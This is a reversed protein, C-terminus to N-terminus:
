VGEEYPTYKEGPHRWFGAGGSLNYATRVLPMHSFAQPMNGVLRGYRPDYMESLLGVDNRLSLLYDFLNLAEDERGLMHLADVLWFGCGLFAGEEGPLPDASCEGGARYRLVLGDVQLERQVADVTGVVREDHAPLFGVQPILLLAADLTRSGYYQTFTSREADYGKECVEQHIADRQARWHDVQEGTGRMEAMRVARDLAVWAMVKSHVYQQRTGRIEWIGEDPEHWHEAVYDALARMIAWAPESPPIGARRALHIADLLEGYVDLQFQKAAGNGIRVPVSGEHGPLWDAEFETLRREGAVGYMIQLDQPSGAVARGLWRRWEKASETYGSRLLAELTFAADRIWCYRYDWNREGGIDEPLSTTPAAVIGGTPAYTLAKLTILSRMVPERWKGDYACQEAWEQWFEETRTQEHDPDAAPPTELHSPHWTLVFPIRQGPGVTFNALTTYDEGYTEVPTRLWMADPGAIAGLQGASHHVWPIIHGYDFRLRLESRMAVEGSLGEVIRMVDPQEDRPPMFDIVRATGDPTEWETELVLTDGRYRRRTSAAGSDWGSLPAIRWRGNDERGLLAAFCAPSDFRPFCLWDISGDRGVLAATEMDGILAYDAIEGPM